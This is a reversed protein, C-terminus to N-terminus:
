ADHNDGIYAFGQVARFHGGYRCGGAKGNPLPRPVGGRSYLRASKQIWKPNRRLTAALQPHSTHFLVPLHRGCRGHGELHYQCVANLFRVGIGAGQWEPMVVLRTARYYGSQFFPCVALHSVPQGDVLGLFYHAAIPMPLDLYYHPKFYKRHTGDVQQIELKIKPRQLCSRYYRGDRTDIIWDPGLWPMVDYHPTLCVVRRGTQRRWAKRFASAGIKAIQRDLVSTFEDLVVDKPSDLLLLRALGARFQEGNSLVRYPRLWSPVSGLGVASLAATVRNFDGDPAIADIIPKDEPWDEAPNYIGGPFLTRGISTKGSGSPGVVVGISWHFSDIDTDITLDFRHGYEANFLSKVRAARYTEYNTCQHHIEIRM